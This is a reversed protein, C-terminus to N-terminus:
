EKLESPVPFYLETLGDDPIGFAYSINSRADLLSENVRDRTEEYAYLEEDDVLLYKIEQLCERVVLEVIEYHEEELIIGRSKILEKVREKNM